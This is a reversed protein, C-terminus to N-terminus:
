VDYNNGKPHAELVMINSINPDIVHAAKCPSFCLTMRGHHRVKRPADRSLSDVHSKIVQSHVRAPLTSTGGGDGSHTLVLSKREGRCKLDTSDTQAISSGSIFGFKSSGRDNESSNDRDHQQDELIGVSASVDCPPSPARQKVRRLIILNICGGDWCLNALYSFCKYMFNLSHILFIVWQEFVCFYDLVDPCIPKFACHTFDAKM